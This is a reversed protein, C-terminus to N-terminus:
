SEKRIKLSWSVWSWSWCGSRCNKSSQGLSWDLRETMVQGSSNLDSQVCSEMDIGIDSKEEDDDEGVCSFSAWDGSLSDLSSSGIWIFKPTLLFSPSSTWFCLLWIAIDQPLEIPPGKPSANVLPLLQTFALLTGGDSFRRPSPHSPPWSPDDGVPTNCFAVNQEREFLLQSSAAAWLPVLLSLLLLLFGINSSTWWAGKKRKQPWSSEDTNMFFSHFCFFSSSLFFPPLRTSYTISESTPVKKLKNWKGAWHLRKKKKRKELKNTQKNPKWFTNVQLQNYNSCPANVIKEEGQHPNTTLRCNQSNSHFNGIWILYGTDM